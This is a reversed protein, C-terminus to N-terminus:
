ATLRYFRWFDNEIPLIEVDQYGAAEAYARMTDARFVTGTGEEAGDAMAVTLCHLISFGYMFRETFDGIAGFTDAVREDAILVTGGPGVLKRMARLADVPRAMDHICEFACALDFRGALEPDSADGHHFSVQHSVGSVAANAVADAISAADIDIGEVHIAPYGKALAISSWGTGCGVDAVRAPRSADTLRAHIDPVAPIWDSALFQDFMVRNMAGIGARIEEGFDAFPVGGGNRYADALDPLIRFVGSMMRVMPMAYALSDDDLLATAHGDPLTYRRTAADGTDEVDLIGTIAQQELWERTYRENAGLHQALSASTAEGLEVLARYYGLRDGLLVSALDMAEVSANFLREALADRRDLTEQDPLIVTTM